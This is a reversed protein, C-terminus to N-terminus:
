NHIDLPKGAVKEKLSKDFKLKLIMHRYNSSGLRPETGPIQAVRGYWEDSVFTGFGDLEVNEKNIMSEKLSEIVTDLAKKAEADSMYSGAKKVLELYENETM